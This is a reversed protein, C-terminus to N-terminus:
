NKILTLLSTAKNILNEGITQPIEGNTIETKVKNIFGEIQDIGPHGKGEVEVFRNRINLDAM